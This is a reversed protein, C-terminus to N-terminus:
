LNERNPDPKDKALLSLSEHVHRELIAQVMTRSDQGVLDPIYDKNM